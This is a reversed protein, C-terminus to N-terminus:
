NFIQIFDPEQGVMLVGKGFIPLKSGRYVSQCHGFHQLLVPHLGLGAVEVSFHAAIGDLVDGEQLFFIGSM